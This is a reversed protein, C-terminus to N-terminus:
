AWVLTTVYMSSKFPTPLLYSSASLFPQKWQVNSDGDKFSFQQSWNRSNIGIQWYAVTYRVGWINVNIVLKRLLIRNASAWILYVRMINSTSECFKLFNCSHNESNSRSTLTVCFLFVLLNTIFLHFSCYSSCKSPGSIWIM